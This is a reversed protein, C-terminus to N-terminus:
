AVTTLEATCQPCKTARPPIGLTCRPCERIPASPAPAPRAIMRNRIWGALRRDVRLPKLYRAVHGTVPIGMRRYVALFSENPNDYSFAVSGELVPGLCTRQLRLAPGLTRYSASVAFEGLNWCTLQKGEVEMLRPYASAVGVPEGSTSPFRTTTVGPPRDPLDTTAYSRVM